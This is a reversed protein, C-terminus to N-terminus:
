ARPHGLHVTTDLEKGKNKEGVFEGESPRPVCHSILYVWASARHCSDIWLVLAVATGADNYCIPSQGCKRRHTVALASARRPWLVAAGSAAHRDERPILPAFAPSFGRRPAQSLSAPGPCFEGRPLPQTPVCGWVFRLSVRRADRATVARTRFRTGVFMVLGSSAPAPSCWFPRDPPCRDGHVRARRCAADTLILSANPAPDPRPAPKAIGSILHCLSRGPPEGSAGLDHSLSGWAEALWCWDTAQAASAPSM